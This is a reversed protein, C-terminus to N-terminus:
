TKISNKQPIYGSIVGIVKWEHKSDKSYEKFVVPGGSFGPNNHGDLFFITADNEKVMGSNIVRKILALPFESCTTLSNLNFPFGLIYGEDGYIVGSSNLSFRNKLDISDKEFIRIISIDVAENPHHFLTGDMYNWFTDQAVYIRIPSNTLHKPTFIHKATIMFAEDNEIWVFGTATGILTDTSIKFVRHSVDTNMFSQASFTLALHITVILFIWKM